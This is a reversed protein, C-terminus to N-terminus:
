LNSAFFDAFPENALATSTQISKDRMRALKRVPKARTVPRVGPEVSPAVMKPKNYGPYNIEHGLHDFTVTMQGDVLNFSILIGSGCEETNYKHIRKRKGDNKPLNERSKGARSYPNVRQFCQFYISVSKNRVTCRKQSFRYESANIIPSVFRTMFMDRHKKWYEHATEKALNDIVFEESGILERTNNHRHSMEVESSYQNKETESQTSPGGNSWRAGRREQEYRGLDPKPILHGNPAQLIPVFSGNVKAYLEVCTDDFIKQTFVPYNPLTSPGNSDQAFPLELDVRSRLHTKGRESTKSAANIRDGNSSSQADESQLCTGEHSNWEGNARNDDLSNYEYEFPAEQEELSFRDAENVTDDKTKINFKPIDINVVIKRFYVGKPDKNTSRIYQLLGAFNAKSPPVRKNYTSNSDNNYISSIQQSLPPSPSLIVPPSLRLRAEQRKIKMSAAGKTRCIICSKMLAASPEEDVYLGDAANSVRKQFAKKPHYQCCRCCRILGTAPDVNSMTRQVSIFQIPANGRQHRQAKKKKKKKFDVKLIFPQRTNLITTIHLFNFLVGIAWL